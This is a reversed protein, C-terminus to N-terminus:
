LHRLSQLESTHEESRFVRELESLWPTPFKLRDDSPYLAVVESFVMWAVSVDMMLGCRTFSVRKWNMREVVPIVPPVLSTSVETCPAKVLPPACTPFEPVLVSSHSAVLVEVNVCPACVKLHPPRTRPVVSLLVDSAFKPPVKVKVPPSPGSSSALLSGM